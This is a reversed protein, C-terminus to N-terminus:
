GHAIPHSAARRWLSALGLCICWYFTFEFVALVVAAAPSCGQLMPPKDLIGRYIAWLHTIMGWSGGLICFNIVANGPLRFAIRWFLQGVAAFLLAYAPPILWRAWAPFFYHYVSEWFIGSALVGFLGCFFVAMVGALMWKMERLREPQILRALLVVFVTDMLAFIFAGQWLIETTVKDDAAFTM